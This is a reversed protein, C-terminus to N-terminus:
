RRRGAVGLGLLGLALLGATGPEPVINISNGVYNVGFATGYGADLIGVETPTADLLGAAKAFFTVTGILFRGNGGGTGSFDIAEFDALSGASGPGSEVLVCCVALNTDFGPPFLVESFATVDALDLGGTDYSLGVQYGKCGPTDTCDLYVSATVSDGIGIDAGGNSWDIDVTIAGASTAMLGIAAFVSVVKALTRM